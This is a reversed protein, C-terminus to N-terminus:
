GPTLLTLITAGIALLVTGAALLGLRTNRNLLARHYRNQYTWILVVSVAWAIVLVAVLGLAVLQDSGRLPWLHRLLVAVCVIVALGSRNWALATREQALGRDAPGENAPV